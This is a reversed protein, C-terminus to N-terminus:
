AALMQRLPAAASAGSRDADHLIEPFTLLALKTELDKVSIMRPAWKPDFDLGELPVNALDQELLFAFAALGAGDPAVILKWYARPIQLHLPGPDGEGAFVPDGPDLVPGAFITLRQDVAQALVARELDGWNTRGAARNFGAVQPSCNTVHFTDGNAIRLEDYTEGWAVDERRVLHGKDFAKRDDTLFRDPIQEIGRLRPDLFWKESAGGLGARSYDAGPIPAKAPADARVNSATVLAIRRAEHMAISFHMYNLITTGDALASLITPDRPAPFPIPIALFAPDYGTRAAYDQDHWPGTAGPAENAISASGDATGLSVTITLPVTLTVTSGPQAAITASVQQVPASAVTIPATPMNPSERPEVATWYRGWPGDAPTPPGDTFALGADVLRSDRALDSVPVAYNTVLYSGGFHLGVVQGTGVAVVASGSNGGLTSSDHTRADVTKGFSDVRGRALWKGPLLRKVNYVGGFVEDQVERDLRLNLAPFGIVVVDEPDDGQEQTALSLPVLGPPLDEIRLLAMDWYPHVLAISAVPYREPVRRNEEEVFNLQATSGPRFALGSKGVGNAFLEAVHRNTMLLNPGVLFATGGYPIDQRSPLEIRGIAPIAPKIRARIADDNLHLWDRHTVTYDDDVISIAPRRDPIIIAELAVREQRSMMEPRDLKAVAGEVAAKKKDSLADFHTVPPETPAPSGLPDALSELGAARRAAGAPVSTGRAEILRLFGAPAFADTDAM